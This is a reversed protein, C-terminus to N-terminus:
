PDRRQEELRRGTEEVDALEREIEADGGHAERVSADLISPRFRSEAGEDADSGAIGLRAGVWRLAGRLM